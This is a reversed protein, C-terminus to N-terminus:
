GLPKRGLAKVYELIAPCAAELMDLVYEFGTDGGYYPDPVDTPWGDDLFDSLMKVDSIPQPNLTLIDRRNDRDMAVVLDFKKLDDSVIKRAVSPLHYGRNRAALIMRQDAPNGAHYGITGASDVFFHDPNGQRELLALFVGEAAPSRCINGM